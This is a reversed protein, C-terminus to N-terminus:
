NKILTVIGSKSSTVNDNFEIIFYYSGVPMKENNYTGDWANTEYQGEKSQFILNGWRNFITVVNKPYIQDINGLVWTENTQDNDPTFATPIIINCEEVIIAVSAFPGECNNVTQSVNYVTTGLNMSPIFTSGNGLINGLEDYWTYTGLGSVTLDIPTANYCYTTDTGAIPADPIQNITITQATSSISNSCNLDTVSLLV